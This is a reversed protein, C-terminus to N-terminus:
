FSLNFGALVTRPIARVRGRSGGLNGGDVADPQDSFIEPDWGTWDTWTALNKGSVYVTLGALGWRSLLENGVNYSLTVDQLRIFSRDLLLPGNEPQSWFMGPANTVGNTPTWYQRIAPRNLRRGSIDTGGSILNAPDALYWNNGGQISNLFFNLTFNKYTITNGIGFRYNPDEYGLIGRDDDPHIDGNGDTTTIDRIKFHGPFFNDPTGGNFFEEETWVVGENDFGFISNIPEGTFWSNGLDFDNEGGLLRTLKNRNLSFALTSRWSFDGRKVNTTRLSLEFGNNQVAGINTLIDEFGTARPLNREVIVDETDATYVELSGGVRDNFLSFDLGFNLSTTTEWRLNPNGLANPRYETVVQDGIITSNVAVTAFSAFRPVGDNGNQGYSARAKLFGIWSIDKLFGEESLVWALSVSPFIATKNNTAFASFGDRRVTGTLIYRGNYDYIIRGMYAIRNQEEANGPNVIQNLGLSPLNFGSSEIDFGTSQLDTLTFKQNERSALLTVNVKHRGAFTNNYTLLSNMLWSTNHFNQRRASGVNDIGARTFSQNYVFNRRIDITNSYNFQYALGKVWPIEVDARVAVFYNDRLDDNLSPTNTLPNEIIGDEGVVDTFFGDPTTLSGWPSADLAWDLRANIGSYDRFTYATNLGVKLWDTIETDFNARLTARQFQDNVELGEQDTYTGSLYYSTKDTRGSVSLDINQISANDRLTQDIWNIEQGALFNEQEEPSRLFVARDEPSSPNPREPKLDSPDPGGREQYRNYWGYLQEQHAYDILRELFQEGNMINSADTPALDQTGVYSNLTITPKETKGKKTTIIIVGNAARAGYVAAASADKLVDINEVDSVNITSIAGNYIIGDLIILPSQNGSLSNQGRIEINPSGGAQSTVGVNVGAAYGQLAQAIDVNASKSKEAMDVSVISGTLDKRRQTGYGIVVVEGLQMVDDALRVKFNTQNLVAIEQAEYGTYSVLLIASQDEVTLSFNGDIDTITGNSTGKEQITAGILPVGEQDTVTGQIDIAWDDWNENALTEPIILMSLLLVICGKWLYPSLKTIGSTSPLFYFM